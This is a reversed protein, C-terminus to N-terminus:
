SCNNYHNLGTPKDFPRRRPKRQTASRKVSEVFHERNQNPNQSLLTTIAQYTPRSRRGKVATKSIIGVFYKHLFLVNSLITSFMM